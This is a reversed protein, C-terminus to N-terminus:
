SFKILIAQTGGLAPMSLRLTWANAFTASYARQVGPKKNMTM